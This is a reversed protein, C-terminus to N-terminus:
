GISVWPCFAARTSVNLITDDLWAHVKSHLCYRVLVQDYLCVRWATGLINVKSLSSQGGISKSIVQVTITQNGFGKGVRHFSSLTQADLSACNNSCDVM